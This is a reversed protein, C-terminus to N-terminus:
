DIPEFKAAFFPYQKKTRSTNTESKTIRIKKGIINAFKPLLVHQKCYLNGNHDQEIIGEYSSEEAIEPDKSAEETLKQIDAQRLVVDFEDTSVSTLWHLVNLLEYILSRTLYPATGNKIQERITLRHSGENTIRVLSHLARQVYLPIYKLLEPRGLFSSCESIKSGERKVLSLGMEYCYDMVWDLLQRIQNPTNVNAYDETELTNLIGVLDSRIDDSLSFIKNYKIRLGTESSNEIAQIINKLLEHQQTPKNYYQETSWGQNGSIAYKLSESGEYGGGTYVFWPIFRSGHCLRKVTDLNDRFVTMSPIDTIHADKCNVDLIVADCSNLNESLWKIGDSYCCEHQIDINYPDEYALDMFATSPQDDIWLIKHRLINSM